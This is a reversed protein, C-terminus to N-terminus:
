PSSSRPSSASVTIAQACRRCLRSTKCPGLVWRNQSMFASAAGGHQQMAPQLRLELPHLPNEGAASLQMLEQAADAQPAATLLSAASLGVIAGIAARKKSFPKSIAKQAKKFGPTKGQKNAANNLQNLAPGGINFLV